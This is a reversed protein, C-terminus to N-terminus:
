VKRSRGKAKRPHHKAKYKGDTQHAKKVARVDKRLATAVKARAKALALADVIPDDQNAITRAGGLLLLQDVAGAIAASDPDPRPHDVVFQQLIERLHPPSPPILDPHDLSNRAILRLPLGCSFVPEMMSPLILDRIAEAGQKFDSVIMSTSRPRKPPQPSM